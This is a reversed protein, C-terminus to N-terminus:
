RTTAVTNRSPASLTRRWSATPRACPLIWRRRRDGRGHVDALRVLHGGPLHVSGAGDSVARVAATLSGPRRKVQTTVRAKSCANDAPQITTIKELVGYTEAFSRVGAEGWEYGLGAMKGPELRFLLHYLDDAYGSLLTGTLVVLRDTCAALTGLANGQATDGATLQHVEDGIGYDFWDSLYRGIFEM